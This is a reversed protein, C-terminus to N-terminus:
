GTVRSPKAMRKLYEVAMVVPFIAFLGAACHSDKKLRHSCLEVSCWGKGPAYGYYTLDGFESVKFHTACKVSSEIEELEDLHELSLNGPLVRDDGIPIPAPLKRMEADWRVWTFTKIPGDDNPVHAVLKEARRNKPRAAPAPKPPVPTKDRAVLKPNDTVSLSADTACSAPQPSNKVISLSPASSAPRYEPKAAGASPASLKAVQMPESDSSRAAHPKLLEPRELLEVFLAEGDDGAGYCVGAVSRGEDRQDEVWEALALGRAILLSMNRHGCRALLADARAKGAESLTFVVEHKAPNIQGTM